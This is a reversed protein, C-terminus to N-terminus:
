YIIQLVPLITVVVAYEDWHQGAPCDTQRKMPATGQAEKAPAAVALAALFTTSLVIPAEHHKTRNSRTTPSNTRLLVRPSM